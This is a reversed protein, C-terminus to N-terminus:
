LQFCAYAGPGNPGGPAYSSPGGKDDKRKLKVQKVKGAYQNHQRIVQLDANMHVVDVHM